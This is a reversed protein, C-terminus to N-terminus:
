NSHTYDQKCQLDTGFLFAQLCVESLLVPIILSM